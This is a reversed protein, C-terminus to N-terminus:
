PFGFGLALHAATNEDLLGLGFPRDVHAVHAVASDADVLALEGVRRTGADRSAFARLGDVGGGGAIESVDGNVFTLTVDNVITGGVVAPRTLRVHGNVRAPDPSTYIEESPLNWAHLM